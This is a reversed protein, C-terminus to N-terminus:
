AHIVRGVFQFVHVVPLAEYDRDNDLDEAGLQVARIILFDSFRHAGLSYRVQM